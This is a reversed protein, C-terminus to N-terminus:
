REVPSLEACREAPAFALAEGAGTTVDVWGSRALGLLEFRVRVRELLQRGGRANPGCEPVRSLLTVWRHEGGGLEFSRFREAGRFENPDDSEPARRSMRAEIWTPVEIDTVRVSLRGKNLLNGGVMPAADGGPGSCCSGSVLHVLPQSTALAIGV